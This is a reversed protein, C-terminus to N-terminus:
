HASQYEKIRQGLIQSYVVGGPTNLHKIDRFLCSDNNLALTDDRYIQLGNRNTFSDILNNFIDINKFTKSFTHRYEPAYTLLVPIKRAKCTDLMAQFLGILVTNPKILSSDNRFLFPDVCTNGNSRYGKNEYGGAEIDKSGKFGTISVNKSYDDLYIFSLWPIHKLLFTKYGTKTFIKEIEKNDDIVPFYQMPDFIVADGDFSNPDINFVILSPDPHAQLFADLTLKFDFMRGADAGANYSSKGTISDIVKPIVTTHTRSSGIFLIDYKTSDGFMEHVRNYKHVYYKNLGTQMLKYSVVSLAIGLILIFVIKYYSSM